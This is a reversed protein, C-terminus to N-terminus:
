ACPGYSLSLSEIVYRGGAGNRWTEVNLPTGFYPAVLDDWFDKRLSPSKAIQYFTRGGLSKFITANSLASPKSKNNILSDINPLKSILTNSIFKDYLYPHEILLNGAITNATKASVSVCILSQGANVIIILGTILTSVM